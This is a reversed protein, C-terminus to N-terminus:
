AIESAPVDLVTYGRRELFIQDAVNFGPDQFAVEQVASKRGLVNVVTEFVLLQIFSFNDAWFKGHEGSIETGYYEPLDRSGFCGLGLCLAKDIQVHGTRLIKNELFHIILKQDPSHDWKSKM